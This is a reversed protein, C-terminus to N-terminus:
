RSHAPDTLTRKLATSRKTPGRVQVLGRAADDLVRSLRVPLSAIGELLRLASPLAALQALCRSRIGSLPEPASLRRGQQMVPRLLAETRLRAPRRPKEGLLSIEDVEMLGSAQYSRWVQKCGPLTAKGPSRKVTPRGAYEVLKYACDLAAHDNSTTLATGVCFVDIPAALARLGAIRWEDLNGSALIQTSRLGAEDLITRVLRSEPALDGSDIRVGRLAIGRRALSQAVAVARHAGQALDYTDILLVVNDPNAEAFHEFALAEAEHAQVFSHAMTGSVPIGFVRGALANSTASFGAIFASRSALLAAEAGHARRLGFEILQANGAVLTCRAAKSAILTQYHILNMLRSELIQAQMIPATVRLVPENAFVLSGEPAATVEGTFRLEALAKLFDPTFRGISALWRLEDAEFGFSEIWNLAAELGACVLFSRGPPLRRFFLEFSAQGHMGHHHYAQLMSLQYLDALLASKEPECTWAIPPTPQDMPGIISPGRSRTKIKRDM